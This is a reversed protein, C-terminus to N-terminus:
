IAKATSEDIDAFGKYDKPVTRHEIMEQLSTPKFSRNMPKVLKYLLELAEHLPPLKLDEGAEPQMVKRVSPMYFFCEGHSRQSEAISYGPEIARTEFFVFIQFECRRLDKQAFNEYYTARYHQKIEEIVKKVAARPLCSSEGTSWQQVARAADNAEGSSHSQRLEINSAKEAVCEILGKINKLQKNIEAMQNDCKNSKNGVRYVLM